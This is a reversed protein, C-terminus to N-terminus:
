QTIQLSHRNCYLDVPFEIEGKSLYLSAGFSQGRHEGRGLSPQLDAGQPFPLQELCPQQLHHVSDPRLIVLPRNQLLITLNQLKQKM